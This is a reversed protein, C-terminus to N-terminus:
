LLPDRKELDMLGEGSALFGPNTVKHRNKGITIESLIDYPLSIMRLPKMVLGIAPLPTTGSTSM